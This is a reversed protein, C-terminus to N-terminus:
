YRRAAEERGAGVESVVVMVLVVLKLSRMFTLFNSLICKM